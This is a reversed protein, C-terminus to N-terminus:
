NGKRNRADAAARHAYLLADVLDSGPASTVLVARTPARRLAQERTMVVSQDKPDIFTETLPDYVARRCRALEDLYGATVVLIDPSGGGHEELMSQVLAELAAERSEYQAELVSRYEDRELMRELRRAAFVRARQLTLDVFIRSGVNPVHAPAYADRHWDVHAMQKGTVPSNIFMPTVGDRSNWMVESEAGDDSAYRMLCFAEKHHYRKPAGSM